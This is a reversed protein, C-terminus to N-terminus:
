APAATKEKLKAETWLAEMEDLSADEPKRGQAALRDEIYRFRREFKANADRTATEVDVKLKRGLNTCVFM